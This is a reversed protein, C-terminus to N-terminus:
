SIHRVETKNGYKLLILHDTNLMPIKVKTIRNHRRLIMNAATKILEFNNYYWVYWEERTFGTPITININISQPRERQVTVYVEGITDTM